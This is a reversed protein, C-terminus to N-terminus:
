KCGSCSDEYLKSVDLTKEDNDKIFRLVNLLKESCNEGYHVTSLGRSAAIHLTSRIIADAMLADEEPFLYELMMENNEISFVSYALIDGRDEAAMLFRTDSPTFGAKKLYNEVLNKDEVVQVKIM